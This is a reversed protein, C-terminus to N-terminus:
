VNIMLVILKNQPSLSNYPLFHIGYCVQQIDFEKISKLNCKSVYWADLYERIQKMREGLNEITLGSFIIKTNDEDADTRWAANIM